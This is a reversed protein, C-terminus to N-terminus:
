VHNMAERPKIKIKHHHNM